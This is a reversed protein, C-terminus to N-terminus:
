RALAARPQASKPSPIARRSAADALAAPRQALPLAAVRLLSETPLGRVAELAATARVSANMAKREAASM